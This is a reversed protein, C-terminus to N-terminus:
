SQTEPDADDMAAPNHQRIEDLEFRWSNASVTDAAVAGTNICRILTRRDMKFWKQAAYSLSVRKSPETPKRTPVCKVVAARRPKPKGLEPASQGSEIQSRLKRLTFIRARAPTNITSSNILVRWEKGTHDVERAIPEFPGPTRDIMSAAERFVTVIFRQVPSKGPNDDGSPVMEAACALLSQFEGRASPDAMGVFRIVHLEREFPSDPELQINSNWEFRAGKYADLETFGAILDDVNM